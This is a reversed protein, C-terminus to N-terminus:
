VLHTQPHSVKTRRGGRAQMQQFAIRTLLCRGCRPFRDGRCSHRSLFLHLVSILDPSSFAQLPNTTRSPHLAQFLLLLYPYISSFAPHLIPSNAFSLVPRPRHNFLPISIQLFLAIELGELFLRFVELSRDFLPPCGGVKFYEHLDSEPSRGNRVIPSM